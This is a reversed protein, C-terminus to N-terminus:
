EFYGLLDPEIEALGRLFEKRSRADAAWRRVGSWRWVIPAVKADLWAIAEKVTPKRGLADMLPQFDKPNGLEGNENEFPIPPSLCRVENGIKQPFEHSIDTWELQWITLEFDRMSAPLALGIPGDANTDAHEFSFDDSM